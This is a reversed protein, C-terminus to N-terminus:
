VKYVVHKNQQKNTKWIYFYENLMYTRDKLLHFIFEVATDFSDRYYMHWQTDGPPTAKSVALVASAKWILRPRHRTIKACTKVISPWTTRLRLLAVKHSLGPIVCFMWRQTVSRRRLLWCVSSWIKLLQFSCYYFVEIDNEKDLLIM